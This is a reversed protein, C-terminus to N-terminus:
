LKKIKKIAKGSQPVGRGLNHFEEEWMTSSRKGSQPVGRGLNHLEEEWITCSRKGADVSGLRERCYLKM